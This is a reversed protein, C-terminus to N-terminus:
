CCSFSHPDKKYGAFPEQYEFGYRAYLARAPAFEPMSGTELSLRRYGRNTAQEIIHELMRSAVGQRTHKAASRMSKIEGHQADLAKLAGCGLLEQEQWISWFTIDAKRLEQLDLTHASEPPSIERMSQVHEQLLAIIEAGELDDERIEM